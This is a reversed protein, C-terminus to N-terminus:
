RLEDLALNLRLLNITPEGVIRSPSPEALRDVLQELMEAQQKQLQRERVIGDIQSRADAVSIRPEASRLEPAGPNSTTPHFYRPGSLKEQLLAAAAAKEDPIVMTPRQSYQVVWVGGVVLALLLLNVVITVPRAPKRQVLVSM